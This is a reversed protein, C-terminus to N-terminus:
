FNIWKEDRLDRNLCFSGVSLQNMIVDISQTIAGGREHSCLFENHFQHSDNM